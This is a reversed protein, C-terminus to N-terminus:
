ALDYKLLAVHKLILTSLHEGDLLRAPKICVKQKPECKKHLILRFMFMITSRFSPCNKWSHALRASSNLLNQKHKRQM